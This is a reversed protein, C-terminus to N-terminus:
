HGYANRLQAVAQNPTANQPPEEEAWPDLECPDIEAGWAHMLGSLGRILIERLREDPDHELQRFAVWEDFQSPEITGLWADVNLVGAQSALRM